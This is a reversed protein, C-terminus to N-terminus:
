VVPFDEAGGEYKQIFADKQDMPLQDFAKLANDLINQPSIPNQVHGMEEEQDM